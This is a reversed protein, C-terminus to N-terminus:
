RFAEPKLCVTINNAIIPEGGRARCDSVGMLMALGWAVIAIGGVAVAGLLLGLMLRDSMM